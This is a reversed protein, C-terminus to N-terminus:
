SISAIARAAATPVAMISNTATAMVTLPVTPM